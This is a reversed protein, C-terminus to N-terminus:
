FVISDYVYKLSSPSITNLKIVDIGNTIQLDKFALTM